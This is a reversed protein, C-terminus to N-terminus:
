LHYYLKFIPVPFSVPTGPTGKHATVDSQLAIPLQPVYIWSEPGNKRKRPSFVLRCKELYFYMFFKPNGSVGLYITKPYDM